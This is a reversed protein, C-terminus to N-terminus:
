DGLTALVSTAISEEDAFFVVNGRLPSGECPDGQSGQPITSMDTVGQPTPATDM